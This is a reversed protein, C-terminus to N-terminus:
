ARILHALQGAEIECESGRAARRLAHALQKWLHEISRHEQTLEEVMGRVQQAEAGPRASRLVAPFLEAEEDQHHPLVADDFLAVLECALKRARTAGALLQPLDASRRLTSVIGEHCRSFAPLPTAIDQPSAPTDM